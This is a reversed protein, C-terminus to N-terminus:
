AWQPVKLQFEPIRSYVVAKDPLSGFFAGSARSDGAVVHYSNYNFSEGPELLPSQGVVGEGEVVIIEGGKEKVIWKRAKIHVSVLGENVITVFYVFPYPRDDPAELTPMYIVDDVTVKLDKMEEANILM